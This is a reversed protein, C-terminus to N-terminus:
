GRALVRDVDAAVTEPNVALANYQRIQRGDPGLLFASITHMVSGDPERERKINFRGLVREIDAPTGTLFLWGPETADERRAYDLLQAPGDHEPDLTISVIRVASGLEPGLRKAVAAMKATLMPCTSTCSTYVFDILVPRGKLSALSVRNGNQDILTVNPLCDNRNAAPYSGKEGRGCGAAILALAIAAAAGLLLSCRKAVLCHPKM